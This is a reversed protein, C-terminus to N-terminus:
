LSAAARRREAIFDLEAAIRRDLEPTDMRPVDICTATASESYEREKDILRIVVKALRELSDVIGDNRGLLRDFAPPLENTGKSDPDAPDEKTPMMEVIRRAVGMCIARLAELDSRQEQTLDGLSVGRGAKLERLSRPMSVEPKQLTGTAPPLPTAADAVIDVM